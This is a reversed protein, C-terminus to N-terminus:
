LEIVRASVAESFSVFVRAVITTVALRSPSDIFLVGAAILLILLWSISSLCAVNM